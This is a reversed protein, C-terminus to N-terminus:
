ELMQDIEAKIAEFPVAGVKLRIEGTQNHILFSAPTGTVGSNEGTKLDELVRATQQGNNFCEEFKARDLGIEEALPILNEIPFGKGNSTTRTYVLDAYKWFADDGGVEGACESAEAEKQAGPNHIQLPYHRYVWNVKGDYGEIIKHVTEHFNKCFPCEFDSYELLTIVAESNGSFHDRGVVPRPVTKAKEQAQRQQDAQSRVQADRQKQIYKEIGAEVQQQMFESDKLENMVATKLEATLETKIRQLFQEENFNATAPPPPTQPVVAPQKPGEQRLQLGFFILSGSILVAAFVIAVIVDKSKSVNEM